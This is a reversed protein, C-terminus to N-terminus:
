YTNLTRSLIDVVKGACTNGSGERNIIVSSRQSIDTDYALEGGEGLVGCKELGRADIEPSARPEVSKRGQRASHGGMSTLETMQNDPDYAEASPRSCM